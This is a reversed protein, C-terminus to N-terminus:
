IPWELVGQLGRTAVLLNNNQIYAASNERVNPGTRADARAGRLNNWDNDTPCFRYSYSFLPQVILFM